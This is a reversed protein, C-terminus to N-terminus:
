EGRELRELRRRLDALEADKQALEQALRLREREIEGEALMRRGDHTFLVAQLGDFGFALPLQRSRWQGNRERRWPRYVGNELRWGRGREPLYEGTADVTFYEAVGAQAYSYGKGKVLDLDNDKTRDSLVEIILAPTGTENLPLSGRLIDFPKRCVFIDPMPQYPSGDPHVFGSVTIQSGAQWPRLGNPSTQAAAVENIGLRLNGITMQHLDTGVVSEETDDPPWVAPTPVLTVGSQSPM